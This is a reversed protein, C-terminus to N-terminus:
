EEDDLEDLYECESIFSKLHENVIVVEEAMYEPEIEYLNESFDICDEDGYTDKIQLNGNRYVVEINANETDIVNDIIQKAMEKVEANMPCYGNNRPLKWSAWDLNIGLLIVGEIGEADDFSYDFYGVNYKVINVFASLIDNMTDGTFIEIDKISIPESYEWNGRVSLLLKCLIKDELRTVNAGIMKDFAENPILTYRENM